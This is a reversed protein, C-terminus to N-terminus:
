DKFKRTNQARKMADIEDQIAKLDLNNQALNKIEADIGKIAEDAMKEGLADVIKQRQEASLNLAKNEGDIPLEKMSLLATIAAVTKAMFKWKM